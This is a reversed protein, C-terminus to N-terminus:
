MFDDMGDDYDEGGGGYIDKVLDMKVSKGKGKQKSKAAKEEKLKASHLGEIHLKVKKLSATNLDVCIKNAVDEILDNYHQSTSFLQIKEIIAKGLLEFDEKSEPVLNDISGTKIGCMDRTLQLNAREELKQVRLKEELKEEETLPASQAHKQELLAEREAIKDALKKKGKKPAKTEESISEKSKDEESDSKDWADKVDDDEDEGEWKDSPLVPKATNGPEFDDADWEGDSM